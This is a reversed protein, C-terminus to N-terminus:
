GGVPTPAPAPAAAPPAIDARWGLERVLRSYTFGAVVDYVFHAIMSVYLAGTWLALAQFVFSFVFIIAMSRMSQMAHNAAFILAALLAAAWASHTLTLFLIYLVGRYAIEEGIGACLSVGVWLGKERPSEPSFFYIRRDGKM